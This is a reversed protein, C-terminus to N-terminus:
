FLKNQSSELDLLYRKRWIEGGYGTLSGNSGIVRHCPIIISIRNQGNATAVARIAKLNGLAIAQQKYTRTKGYAINQLEEWVNKQFPTGITEIPINFSTLQKNFYGDLQEITEKIITNQSQKIQGNTHTTIERLHNNIRKENDFELMCLGNNNSALTIIGIPSNYETLFINM